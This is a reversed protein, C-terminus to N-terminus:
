MSDSGVPVSVSIHDSNEIVDLYDTHIEFDSYNPNSIDIIYGDEFEAYIFLQGNKGEANFNQILNANITTAQTSWGEVFIEDESVCVFFLLYIFM